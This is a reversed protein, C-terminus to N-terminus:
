ALTSSLDLKKPNKKPSCAVQPSALLCLEQESVRFKEATGWNPIVVLCFLLGM